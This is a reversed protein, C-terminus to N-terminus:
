KCLEELKGEAHLEAISDYGGILKDGVFIQPVTMMGSKETLKQFADTDNTIDHEEFKINLEILLNKAQKCYPCFDKTYISVMKTHNLTTKLIGQLIFLDLIFSNRQNKAAPDNSNERM